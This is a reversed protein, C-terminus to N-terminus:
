VKTWFSRRWVTPARRRCRWAAHMAAPRDAHLLLPLTLVRRRRSPQCALAHHSNTYMAAAM